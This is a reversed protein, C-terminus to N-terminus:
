SLSYLRIGRNVQQDERTPAGYRGQARRGKSGGGNRHGRGGGQGGQGKTVGVGAPGGGEQGWFVEDEGDEENEKEEEDESSDSTLGGDEDEDEDETEEDMDEPLSVRLWDEEREVSIGGYKVSATPTLLSPPLYLQGGGEPLDLVLKEPLFLEGGDQLARKLTTYADPGMIGLEELHSTSVGGRCPFILPFVGKCATRTSVCVNIRRHLSLRNISRLFHDRDRGELVRYHPICPEEENLLQHKCTGKHTMLNSYTSFMSFCHPCTLLPDEGGKVLELEEEYFRHLEAEVETYDNQLSMLEEEQQEEQELNFEGLSELESEIGFLKKKIDEKRKCRSYMTPKPVNHDYGLNIPTVLSDWIPEEREKEKEQLIRKINGSLLM